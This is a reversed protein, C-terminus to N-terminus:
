RYEDQTVAEGSLEVVLNYADSSDRLYTMVATLPTVLQAATLELTVATGTEELGGCSVTM